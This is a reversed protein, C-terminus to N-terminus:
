WDNFFNRYFYVGDPADDRVLVTRSEADRLLYGAETVKLNLECSLRFASLPAKEALRLLQADADADSASALCIAMVGTTGIARLRLVGGKQACRRLSAMTDEASIFDTGRARNILCFADHALLLGLGGKRELAARCVKVMDADVSDASQGGKLIVTGSDGLLGFDELLQRVGAEEGTVPLSKSVQKAAMAAQAAHKRLSELDSLAVDLTETVATKKAERQGLIRQLGGIAAAEYAGERWKGASVASTMKQVLEEAHSHCKIALTEGSHFHLVSRNSRMFGSTLELSAIADLRVALWSDSSAVRWYLRHTTLRARAGLEKGDLLTQVTGQPEVHLEVTTPMCYVDQEGLLRVPVSGEAGGEACCLWV